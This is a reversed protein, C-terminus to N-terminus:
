LSTVVSEFARKRLIRSALRLRAELAGDGPASTKRDACAALASTLGPTDRKNARRVYRAQTPLARIARSDFSHM